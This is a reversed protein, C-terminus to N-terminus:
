LKVVRSWYCLGCVDIPSTHSIKLGDNLKQPLRQLKLGVGSLMKKPLVMVMQIRPIIGDWVPIGRMKMSLVTSLQRVGVPGSVCNIHDDYQNDDTSQLVYITDDNLVIDSGYGCNMNIERFKRMHFMHECSTNIILDFDGYENEKNCVKEFMVDVVDCKYRNNSKYKKNFLYSIDKVDKDMEFNHIFDVNLRELLLPTLFNSYWGALIGVVKPKIKLTQLEEIVWLKSELQAVTTASAVSRLYQPYKKEINVFIQKWNRAEEMDPSLYSFFLATAVFTDAPINFQNIAM